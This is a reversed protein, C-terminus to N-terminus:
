DDNIKKVIVDLDRFDDKVCQMLAQIGRQQEALVDRIDTVAGQDLTYKEGGSGPNQSQLRVCSLLEHLRGRFQTPTALEAAVGELQAMLLEEERSLTFGVKRQTEQRVLVRLVRHALESQKRKAETLAAVADAQKKKLSHIEEALTDLRGAQAKNQGDQASIRAQLSKFGILPVPIFKAPDPNDAVAQKWLRADVGSPPKALYDDLDSKSFGIKAYVNTVGFNKLAAAQGTFFNSLDQSPIKRSQGNNTERVTLIVECSDGTEKITEVSLSVGPKNGLVGQLSTVLQARGAEVESAKKGIAMGVLGDSNEHKPIMSYGVAKFRCLPNTQELALPQAQNSYYAKGQGWSAQVMNLRAVIADRTDNYLACQMVSQYLAADAGQAQAGQQQQQQQQQQNAGFNNFGTNAGGGFAGGTAAGFSTGTGGFGGGFGTTSTNTSGFLGGPQSTAAGFGTPKNQAGFLGGSQSTAAGFGGTAGFAPASTATQGFGGFGTTQSQTTAGFGGFGTSQAPTAAAAGFGNSQSTATAGFGGFGTSQAPTAAAAGFGGFGTSQTTAAAGFGGFGTGQTTAPKGFASATPAGGFGTSAAGFGGAAAPQAPAGFSFTM